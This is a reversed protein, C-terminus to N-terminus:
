CCNLLPMYIVWGLWPKAIIDYNSYSEAFGKLDLMKFFSFVLFFAAMFDQMRIEFDFAGKINRIIHAIGTIYAGILLIPKYTSLWFSKDESAAFPKM